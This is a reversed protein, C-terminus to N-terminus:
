KFEVPSKDEKYLLYPRRAEEFKRAADRIQIVITEASQSREIMDKFQTGGTVRAVEDWKPKFDDPYLDTLIRFVHVFLDVPRAAARDKLIVKVGRCKEGKYLDDKPTFSTSRFEFGPTSM